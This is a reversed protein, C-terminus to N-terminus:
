EPLLRPGEHAAHAGSAPRDVLPMAEREVDHVVPVRAGSRDLVGEVDSLLELVPDADDDPAAEIPIPGELVGSGDGNGPQQASNEGTAGAGTTAPRKNHRRGGRRGRRRRKKLEDSM